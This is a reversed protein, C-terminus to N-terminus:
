MQPPQRPSRRKFSLLKNVGICGVTLDVLRELQAAPIQHPGERWHGNAAVFVDALYCVLVGLPGGDVQKGVLILSKLRKLQEEARRDDGEAAADNTLAGVFAALVGPLFKPQIAQLGTNDLLKRGGVRRLLDTQGFAHSLSQSITRYMSMSRPKEADM